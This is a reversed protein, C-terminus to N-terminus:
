FFLATIDSALENFIHQQKPWHSKTECKISGYKRMKEAFDPHDLSYPLNKLYLNRRVHTSFLSFSASRFTSTAASTAPKTSALHVIQPLVVPFQRQGVVVVM